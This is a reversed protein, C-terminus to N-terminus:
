QAKMPPPMAGAPVIYLEVLLEKSAEGAGMVIRGPDIGRTNVLYSQARAARRLASQETDARGSSVIVYGQAGPQNKLEDAFLDLRKRENAFSLKGYTDFRQSQPAPCIIFSCSASNVCAAPLGTVTVTATLGNTHEVQITPTGQGSRITGASVAWVHNLNTTTAGTVTATFTQLEGPQPLGSPCDVTITPCGNPAPMQQQGQAAVCLLLVALALRTLPHPM